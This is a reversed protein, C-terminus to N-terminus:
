LVPNPNFPGLYSDGPQGAVPSHMVRLRQELFRLANSIPEGIEGSGGYESIIDPDGASVTGLQSIGEGSEIPSPALIEEETNRSNGADTNDEQSNSKRQRKLFQRM